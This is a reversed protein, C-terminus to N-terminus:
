QYDILEPTFFLKGFIRFDAWFITTFHQNKLTKKLM